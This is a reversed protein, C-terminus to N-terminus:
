QGAAPAPAPSPEDLDGLRYGDGEQNTPLVQREFPATRHEAGGRVQAAGHPEKVNWRSSPKANDGQAKQGSRDAEHGKPLDNEVV